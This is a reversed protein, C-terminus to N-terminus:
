SEHKRNNFHELGYLLTAFDSLSGSLNSLEEKELELLKIRERYNQQFVAIRKLLEPTEKKIKKSLRTKM